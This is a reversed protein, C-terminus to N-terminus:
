QGALRRAVRRIRQLSPGPMTAVSGDPRIAFGLRRAAFWRRVILAGCGGVLAGAIVDSPYHAMLVVRSVAILAAYIWLVTRARPFLAGLAVAAAFATTSHGSPMSAFEVRWSFPVFYLEAHGTLVPRHRGIMRKVITVFLSPIGVATFVFCCRVALSVLVGHAMRGLSPSAVAALAVVMIGSPYLFWDSKGFNTIEGFVIVLWPPVGRYHAAAWPDLLWMAAGVAAIGAACAIAIRARRGDRPAPLDHRPRAVLAAIWAALNAATLTLISDAGAAHPDSRGAVTM